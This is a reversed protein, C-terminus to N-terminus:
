LLALNWATATQVAVTPGVLVFSFDPATYGALRDVQVTQSQLADIAASLSCALRWAPSVALVDALYESLAPGHGSEVVRTRRDFFATFDMQSQFPGFVKHMNPEPALTPTPPPESATPRLTAWWPAPGPLRTPPLQRCAPQVHSSTADEVDSAAYTAACQASRRLHDRLREPLWYETSCVQCATGFAFSGLGKRGHVRSRHAACAAGQFLQGCDPCPTTGAARGGQPLRVFTCGLDQIAQHLAAKALCPCAPPHESLPIQGGQQVLAAAKARASGQGRWTLIAETKHPAYNVDIGIM